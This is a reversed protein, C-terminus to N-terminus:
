LNINNDVCFKAVVYTQKESIAGKTFSQNLISKVIDTMDVKDSIKAKIENISGEGIMANVRSIMYNVPNAKSVTQKKFSKAKPMEDIEIVEVTSKAFMKVRGKNDETIFFDGREGTVKYTTNNNVIAKM